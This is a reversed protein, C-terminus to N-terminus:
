IINISPLKTINSLKRDSIGGSSICSENLLLLSFRSYSDMSFLLPAFYLAEILCSKPVVIFFFWTVIFRVARREDNDNSSGQTGRFM